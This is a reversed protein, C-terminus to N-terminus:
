TQTANKHHKKHSKQHVIGKRRYWIVDHKRPSPSPRQITVDRERHSETIIQWGAHRLHRITSYCRQYVRHQQLLDEWVCYWKNSMSYRRPTVDKRFRYCFLDRTFIRLVMVTVIIQLLHSCIVIKWLIKTILSTKMKTPERRKLHDM